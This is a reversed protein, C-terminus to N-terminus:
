LLVQFDSIDNQIAECLKAAPTKIEELSPIEYIKEIEELQEQDEEQMISSKRRKNQRVIEELDNIKKRAAATFIKNIWEIMKMEENLKTATQRIDQVYQPLLSQEGFDAFEEVHLRLQNLKLLTKEKQENLIEQRSVYVNEILKFQISMLSDICSHIKRQNRVKQLSESYDVTVMRILQSFWNQMINTCRKDCAFEVTKHFLDYEYPKENMAIEIDLFTTTLLTDYYFNRIAVLLPHFCFLNKELYKLSNKFSKNWEKKGGFELQRSIPIWNEDSQKTESNEKLSSKVIFYKLSSVYEKDVEQFMLDQCTKLHSKNRLNPSILSLIKKKTEDSLQGIPSCEFHKKLIANELLKRNESAVTYNIFPLIKPFMLNQELKYSPTPQYRSKKKIGLKDMNQRLEQNQKRKM